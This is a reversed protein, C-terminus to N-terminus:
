FIIGWFFRGALNLVSRGLTKVGGAGGEVGRVGEEVGEMGGGGERVFCRVVRSMPFGEEEVEGGRGEGGDEPTDINLSPFQGNSLGQADTETGGGGGGRGRRLGLADSDTGAAWHQRNKESL